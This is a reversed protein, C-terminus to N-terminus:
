ILRSGFYAITLSIIGSIAYIIMRKGRWGLRWHGFLAVGLILWALFSFGAKHINEATFANISHYVGSILTLTLLFEGVAFLKFFHREVTILSPMVPSFRTKKAKLHRDIWGIQIAYLMAIFCVAYTFISLGIHFLMVSDQNLLQIMHSPMFTALVLNLISFAFVIPLLFWISNVTLIALTALMAISVSMLSGIQMLTFTHDEALNQLSPYLSVFHFIIALLATLFLLTKKPRSQINDTSDTSTLLPAIMLVSILYFLISFVAFWM